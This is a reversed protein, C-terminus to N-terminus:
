VSHQQKDGSVSLSFFRLNRDENVYQTIRYRSTTAMGSFLHRMLLVNMIFFYGSPDM